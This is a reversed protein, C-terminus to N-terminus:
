RSAGFQAEAEAERMQFEGCEPTVAILDLCCSDSDPRWFLACYSTECVRQVVSGNPSVCESDNGYPQVLVMLLVRARPALSGVVRASHSVDHQVM